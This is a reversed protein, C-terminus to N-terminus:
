KETLKQIRAYQSRGLRALPNLKEPDLILKCGEEEVNEDSLWIGQIEGLILGQPKNGVEIIRHLSCYMAIKAIELRPLAWGDVAALKLSFKEVESEGYELESGTDTVKGADQVAAIHVVFKKHKEINVWTDKKGGTKKQGASFSLIPPDSSVGNFFSFPALNYNAPASETLIWAIPRPVITQVMLHYLESPKKEKVDILM